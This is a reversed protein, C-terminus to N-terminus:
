INKWTKQYKWVDLVKHDYHVFQYIKKTKQPYRRYGIQYIKLSREQFHPTVIIGESVCCKETLWKTQFNLDKMRERWM